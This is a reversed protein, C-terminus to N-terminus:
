EYSFLVSYGVRDLKSLSVLNRSISPVYFTDELDMQHGKEIIQRNTEVAIVEAKLRNGM